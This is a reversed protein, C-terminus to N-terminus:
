DAFWLDMPCLIFSVSDTLEKVGSPIKLCVTTKTVALLELNKPDVLPQIIKGACM